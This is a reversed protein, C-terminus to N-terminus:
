VGPTLSTAGILLAVIGERNASLAPRLFPREHLNMMRIHSPVSYPTGLASRADYGMVFVAGVYGLELARGYKEAPGKQVGFRGIVTNEDPTIVGGIISGRLTGTRLHPPEGPESAPPYGVSISESVEAVLYEIAAQMGRALADRTRGKVATANWRQIAGSM